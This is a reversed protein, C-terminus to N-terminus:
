IFCHPWINDTLPRGAITFKRLEEITSAALAAARIGSGSLTVIILDPQLRQPHTDVWNWFSYRDKFGIGSALRTTESDNQIRASACSAASLALAFISLWLGIRCLYLRTRIHMKRVM